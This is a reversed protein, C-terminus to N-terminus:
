TVKKKHLIEESIRKPGHYVWFNIEIINSESLLEERLLVLDDQNLQRNMYKNPIKDTIFANCSGRGPGIKLEENIKMIASIMGLAEVFITTIFTKEQDDEFFKLCYIDMCGNQLESKYLKNIEKQFKQLNM